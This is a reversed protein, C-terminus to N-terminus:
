TKLIWKRMVVKRLDNCLLFAVFWGIVLSLLFLFIFILTGEIESLYYASIGAICFAVLLPTVFNKVISLWITTNPLGRLGIIQCGIYFFFGYISWVYAAGIM